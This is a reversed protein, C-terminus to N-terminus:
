QEALDARRNYIQRWKKQLSKKKIKYTWGSKFLVFCLQQLQSRSWPVTDCQLVQADLPSGATVPSVLCLAVRDRASKGQEIHLEAYCLIEERGWLLVKASCPVLSYQPFSLYIYILSSNRRRPLPVTLTTASSCNRLFIEGGDEPRLSDM